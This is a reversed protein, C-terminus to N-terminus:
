FKVWQGLYNVVVFFQRVMSKHENEYYPNWGISMVM